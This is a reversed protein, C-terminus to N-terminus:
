LGKRKQLFDNIEELTSDKPPAIDKFRNLISEKNRLSVTTQHYAPNTVPGVEYIEASIIERHQTGDENITLREGGENVVFSFSAGSINGRAVNVALDKGYTTPPIPTRFTLSDENDSIELKPNSRTTSLVMSSDHNIFSKIEMAKNLSETFAGPRVSEFYGPWLETEVNYVIGRGTIYDVTDGTENLRKEYDCKVDNIVRYEREIEITM